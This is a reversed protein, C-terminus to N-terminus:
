IEKKTKRNGDARHCKKLGSKVRAYNLSILRLTARNKFPTDVSCFSKALYGVEFHAVYMWRGSLYM